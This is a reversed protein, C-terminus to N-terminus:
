PLRGAVRVPAGAGRGVPPHPRRHPRARGGGRRPGAPAGALPGGVRLPGRRAAVGVGAAAGGTAGGGVRGRGRGCRHPRRGVRRPLGVWAGAVALRDAVRLRPRVLLLVGENPPDALTARPVPRRRRLTPRRRRRRRCRPVGAGSAVAAAAAAVTTPAVASGDSGADAVAPAVAAAANVTPAACLSGLVHASGGAVGDAHRRRKAAPPAAAEARTPGGPAMAGGWGVGRSPRRGCAFVTRQVLRRRQRRGVALLGLLLHRRPSPLSAVPRPGTVCRTPGHPSHFRAPPVAADRRRRGGAVLPPEWCVASAPARRGADTAAAAGCAGAAPRGAARCRSLGCFCPADAGAVRTRGTATLGVRDVGPAISQRAHWRRPPPPHSEHRKAAAATCRATQRGAPGGQLPACRERWLAPLAQLVAV